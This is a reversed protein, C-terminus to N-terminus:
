FVDSSKACIKFIDSNQICLLFIDLVYIINERALFLLKGSLYLVCAYRTGGARRVVYYSFMYLCTIFVIYSM